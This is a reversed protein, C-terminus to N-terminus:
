NKFTLSFEHYNDPNMIQDALLKGVIDADTTILVVDSKPESSKTYTVYFVRQTQIPLEKM